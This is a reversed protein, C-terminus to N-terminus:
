FPCGVEEANEQTRKDKAYQDKPDDPDVKGELWECLVEYATGFWTTELRDVVKNGNDRRALYTIRPGPLIDFYVKSSWQLCLGSDGCPGVMVQDNLLGETDLKALVNCAAAYVGNNTSDKQSRVEERLEKPLYM